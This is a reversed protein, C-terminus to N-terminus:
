DGLSAHTDSRSRSRRARMSEIGSLWLGLMMSAYLERGYARPNGRFGERLRAKEDRALWTQTELVDEALSHLPGSLWETMPTPFGSKPRHAIPGIEAAAAERLIRKGTKGDTLWVDPLSFAWEVLRHDLYPVRVELQHRMGLRDCKVLVDDALYCSLDFALMSKLRTRAPRTWPMTSAGPIDPVGRRVVGVGGYHRDIPTLASKLRRIGPLNLDLLRGLGAGSLAEAAPRLRELWIAEGYSPYGAFVEDAGEGALLVTLGLERAAEAVMDFTVVTPDGLPEDLSAAIDLLRSEVDTSIPVEVAELGLSRSLAEADRWENAVSQSNGPSVTLAPTGPLDKAVGAAIFSSDVGGSLLIGVRRDAPLHDHVVTQFRERLEAAADELTAPVPQLPRESLTWWAESRPHLSDKPMLRHGSPLKTVERLMTRPAPVFRHFLYRPVLSEDLTPDFDPWAWFAKLESAFRIRGPTTWLYLPKIGLRDRALFLEQQRRDLIAIAFMGTLRPLMDAGLEEWLHPLVESDADTLLQHGRALVFDRLEPYNYLEGNMVAGVQGDESMYPPLASAKGRIRLRAMGISGRHASFIGDGDPGRHRLRSVADMVGRVDPPGAISPRTIWEGAIGCM